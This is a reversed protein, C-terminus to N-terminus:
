AAPEATKRQPEEPERFEEKPVNVLNDINQHPRSDKSAKGLGFGFKKEEVGVKEVPHGPEKLHAEEPPGQVEKPLNNNAIDKSLNRYINKFQIFLERVQRLSEIDVDELRGDLYDKAVKQLEFQQEPSYPEYTVRSRSALTDHM